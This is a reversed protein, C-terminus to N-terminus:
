DLSPPWAKDLYAKARNINQCQQYAKEQAQRYCKDIMSKNLMGAEKPDIGVLLLAKRTRPSLAETEPRAPALPPKPPKRPFQKPQPPSESPSRPRAGAANRWYSSLPGNSNCQREVHVYPCPTTACPRNRSYHHCAFQSWTCGHPCTGTRKNFKGCVM